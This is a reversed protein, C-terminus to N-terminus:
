SKDKAMPSIMIHARHTGPNMLWPHDPASPTEPIGTSASTSWPMYIVYRLQAGDVMSTEPDYTTNPGYYIHLTAGPTITFKGSKMEEERIDFIEESSKGEARLARGRAMFPELDKHYCAANFGDKNPDDALVIFENEGEKLTVFEGAMNYGIVKSKARSEAPAAMLSTAILDENTEIAKLNKPIATSLSEATTETDSTEQTTTKTKDSSNCSILLGTLIFATILHKM